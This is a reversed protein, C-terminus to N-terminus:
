TGGGGTFRSPPLWVEHAGQAEYDIGLIVDIELGIKRECRNYEWVSETGLALVHNYNSLSDADASDIGSGRPQRSEGSNNTLLYDFHM